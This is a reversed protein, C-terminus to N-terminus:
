QPTHTDRSLQRPSPDSALRGTVEGAVRADTDAVFQHDEAVDGHMGGLEGAGREQADRVVLGTTRRPRALRHQGQVAIADQGAAVEGAGSETADHVSKPRSELTLGM